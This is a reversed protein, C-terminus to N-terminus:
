ASMEKKPSIKLKIDIIENATNLASETSEFFRDEGITTLLGSSRLLKMPQENVESYLLLIHKERCRKYIQKLANLATADMNPVAKMKFIIINANNRIENMADLFSNAAGFFLPGNIEYLLIRSNVHAHMSKEVVSEKEDEDEAFDPKYDCSVNAIKTAESMRHIFLFMAFVMGIEIAVVLDFVITFVFTVVLVTIDSKTSKLLSKFSRWESMNYAVVILIAALTTMPILKALPM